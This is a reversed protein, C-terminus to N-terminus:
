EQPLRKAINDLANQAASLHNVLKRLDGKQMADIVELSLVSDLKQSYSQTHSAALIASQAAGEALKPEDGENEPKALIVKNLVNDRVRELTKTEAPIGDDSPPASRKAKQRETKSMTALGLHQLEDLSGLMQQVYAPRNEDIRYEISRKIATGTASASVLAEAIPEGSEDKPLKNREEESVEEVVFEGIITWFYRAFWERYENSRGDWDRVSVKMQAMERGQWDPHKSTVTRFCVSRAELVWLSIQDSFSQAETVRRVLQRAAKAVQSGLDKLKADRIANREAAAQEAAAIAAAEDADLGQIVLSESATESM